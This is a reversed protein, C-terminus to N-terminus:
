LSLNQNEDVTFEFDSDSDQSVHQLANFASPMHSMDMMNNIIKEMSTPRCFFDVEDFDSFNSQISQFPALYGCYRQYPRLHFSERRPSNFFM